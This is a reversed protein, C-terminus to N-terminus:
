RRKLHTYSVSKENHLMRFVVTDSWKKGTPSPINQNNLERAIRSSGVGDKYRDFIYKVIFSENTEEVLNEIKEDYIFGYPAYHGVSDRICMKYLIRRKFAM